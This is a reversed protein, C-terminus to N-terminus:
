KKAKGIKTIRSDIISKFQVATLKDNIGDSALSLKSLKKDLDAIAEKSAAKKTTASFLDVLNASKLMEAIEKQEIAKYKDDHGDYINIDKTLHEIVEEPTTTAAFYLECARLKRTDSNPVSVVHMPNVLCIVAQNGFTHDFKENTKTPAPRDYGTGYSAPEAQKTVVKFGTGYGEGVAEKETLDIKKAETKIGIFLPSGTHLGKSCDVSGDEDCQTKRDLKAVTGITYILKKNGHNHAHTYEGIVDTTKVMRYTVFYGNKTIMLNHLELYDFLKVRAVPNPNLLM